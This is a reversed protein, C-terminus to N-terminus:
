SDFTNKEWGVSDNGILYQSRGSLPVFLPERRCPQTGAKPESLLRDGSPAAVPWIRRFRNTRGFRCIQGM